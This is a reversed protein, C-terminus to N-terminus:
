VVNFRQIQHRKLPQSVMPVRPYAYPVYASISWNTDLVKFMLSRQMSEMEALRPGWASKNYDPRPRSERTRKGGESEDDEEDMADWWTHRSQPELGDGFLDNLQMSMAHLNQIHVSAAAVATAEEDDLDM